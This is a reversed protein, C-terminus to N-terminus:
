KGLESIEIFQFFVNLKDITEPKVAYIRLEENADGVYPKVDKGKKYSYENYFIFYNKTGTLPGVIFEKFVKGDNSDNLREAIKDLQERNM